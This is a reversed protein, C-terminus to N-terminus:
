VAILIIAEEEGDNDGEPALIEALTQGRGTQRTPKMAKAWLRAAQRVHEIDKKLWQDLSHVLDMLKLAKQYDRALGRVGKVTWGIGTGLYYEDCYDIWINGACKDHVDCALALHRLPTRLKKGMAALRQTNIEGLPTHASVIRHLTLIPCGPDCDDDPEILGAAVQIFQFVYGLEHPDEESDRWFIPQIHIEDPFAECEDWADMFLDPLPFYNEEILDAFKMVAKYIKEEPDGPSAGHRKFEAPFLTRFVELFRAHRVVAEIQAMRAHAGRVSVPEQKRFEEPFSRRLDELAVALELVHRLEDIAEYASGPPLPPPLDPAPTTVDVFM